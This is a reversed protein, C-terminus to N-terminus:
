IREGRSCGSHAIGNKDTGNWDAITSIVNGQGTVVSNASEFSVNADLEDYVKPM